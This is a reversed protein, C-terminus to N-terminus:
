EKVILKGRIRLKIGLKELKNKHDFIIDRLIKRSIELQEALIDFEIENFLDSYKVLKQISDQIVQNYDTIEIERTIDNLDIDYNSKLINPNAEIWNHILSRVTESRSQKRKKAMMTIVREDFADLSFTIRSLESSKKSDSPM